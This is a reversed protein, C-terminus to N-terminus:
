FLKSLAVNYDHVVDNHATRLVQWAHANASNHEALTHITGNVAARTPARLGRPAIMELESGITIVETQAQLALHIHDQRGSAHDHRVLDAIYGVSKLAALFRGALERVRRRKSLHASFAQTVLGALLALFGGLLGAVLESSM